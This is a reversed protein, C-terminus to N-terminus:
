VEKEGSIIDILREIIKLENNIKINNRVPELSVERLNRLEYDKFGMEYQYIYKEIIEDGQISATLFMAPMNEKQMIESTLKDCTEWGKSYYSLLSDEGTIQKYYEKISVKDRNVDKEIFKILDNLYDKCTSNDLSSVKNKYSNIKQVYEDNVTLEIDDVRMDCYAMMMLVIIMSMYFISFIYLITKIKKKM